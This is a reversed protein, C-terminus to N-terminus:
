VPARLAGHPHYPLTYPCVLAGWARVSRRSRRCSPCCPGAASLQLEAYSPLLPNAASTDEAIDYGDGGYVGRWSGQTTTDTAVYQASANGGATDSATLAVADADADVDGSADNGLVVTLTGSTVHVTALTQFPRGGSITGSPDAQQDVTATQRLTTGDYILYKADTASGSAGEWTAQVVYDGAPLGDEEWRATATAASGAPAPAVSLSEGDYGSSTSQWGSGTTSFGDDQDDLIVSLLQRGELAQLIPLFSRRSRRPRIRRDSRQRRFGM